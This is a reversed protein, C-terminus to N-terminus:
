IKLEGMPPSTRNRVLENLRYRIPDENDLCNGCRAQRLKITSVLVPQPSRELELCCVFDAMRAGEVSAAFPTWCLDGEALM